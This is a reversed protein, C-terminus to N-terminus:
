AKQFYKGPSEKILGKMQLASLVTVTKQLSIGAGEVVEELQVPGSDLLSFLKEEEASLAARQSSKARRSVLLGLDSLIDQASMVLCAGQKLLSNTGFSKSSDANGPLAFVGRGQELALDATILAGSKEKAEVVFVASSLGSIIRNRVPFCGPDPSMEVPYESVLAGNECIKEALRKNEKPYLKAIGGGLVAITCGKGALAGEHAATDIGLALGSVVVVGAGALDSSIQSAMRRGYLSAVRSGVVAVNVSEAPPLSGKVYLLIPPDHIERLLAPYREDFIPIIDIQHKLAKEIEEDARPLLDAAKLDEWLVRIGKKQSEFNDKRVSFISGEGGFRDALKKYSVPGMNKVLSLAVIERLKNTSTM